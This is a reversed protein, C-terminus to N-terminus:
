LDPIEKQYLPGESSYITPQFVFNYTLRFATVETKSKWNVGLEDGKKKYLEYAKRFAAMELMNSWDVNLLTGEKKFLSRDGPTMDSWFGFEDCTILAYALCETTV